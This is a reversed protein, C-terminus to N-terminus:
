HRLSFDAPFALSRGVRATAAPGAVFSAAGVGDVALSGTASGETAGKGGESLSTLVGSGVEWLPGLPILAVPLFDSSNFISFYCNM